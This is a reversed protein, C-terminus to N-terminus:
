TLLGLPELGRWSPWTLLGLAWTLALLALGVGWPGLDVGWPGLDVGGPAWTLVVLLGVGRPGLIFGSPGKGFGGPAGLLARLAM